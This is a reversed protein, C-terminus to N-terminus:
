HVVVSLMSPPSPPFSLSASADNSPGSEGASNVATAVYCYSATASISLDTFTLGTIPSANIKTFGTTTTPATAPCSGTLRYISYSSVSTDVSATWSLVVCHAATGCQAFASASGSALALLLLLKKMPVM